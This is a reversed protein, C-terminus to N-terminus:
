QYPKEQGRQQDQNIIDLDNRVLRVEKKRPLEKLVEEQTPNLRNDAAAVFMTEHIAEVIEANNYFNTQAALEYLDLHGTSRGAKEFAYQILTVKEENSLYGFSFLRDFRGARTLEVPLVTIDRATVILYVLGKREQLWTLLTNFLRSTGGSGGYVITNSMSKDIDDIWLVVPSITEAMHLAVRLNHESAGLLGTFMSGFDLRVIPWELTGAIAKAVYSKGSGALGQIFIGKPLPMGPYLYDEDLIKKTFKIWLKLEEYGIVDQELNITPHLLELLGEKRIIAEKYKKLEELCHENLLGYQAMSIELIYHVETKTLGGAHWYFRKVLLELPLSQAVPYQEIMERIQTFSLPLPHFVRIYKHLEEPINSSDSLIIITHM